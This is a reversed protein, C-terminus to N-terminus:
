LKLLAYCTPLVLIGSPYFTHVKCYTLEVFSNKFSHFSFNITLKISLFLLTIKGKM